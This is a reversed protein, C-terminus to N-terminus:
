DIGETQTYGKVILQAKHREISGDPKLKLRYVWKNGVHSCDPPPPLLADIENQM